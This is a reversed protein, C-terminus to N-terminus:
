VGTQLGSDLTDNEKHFPVPGIKECLKVKNIFHYKRNCIYIFLLGVVFMMLTDWHSASPTLDKFIAHTQLASSDSTFLVAATINNALHLGLALELGDDKIAVYGMILGMLIYQPMAVWFGFEKVEPNAAHMVGFLISIILLAIWRYRVLRALGQTLYGRFLLEEFSTQFPILILVIILLIIFNLPEFQIQIDSFGTYLLQAFTFIISLAAWIGASFFIRRWDVKKRATVIDLYNKHHIHKVCLFLTFFGVAYSLLTLALGANTNTIMAINVGQLIEPNRLIMYIVLPVSGLQTAGFVVLLTALYLYWKNEGTYAKELFM